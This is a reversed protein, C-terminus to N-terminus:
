PQRCCGSSAPQGVCNDVMKDWVANAMAASGMTNPHLDAPAFWDM